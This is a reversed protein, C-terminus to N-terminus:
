PNQSICYFVFDLNGPSDGADTLMAAIESRHQIGHTAATLMAQWRPLTMREEGRVWEIEADLQVDSLSEIYARRQAALVTWRKGIEALTALEAPNVFAPAPNGQWRALWRMDAGYNHVLTDHIPQYGESWRKRYVEDPLQAAIHLLKANAWVGYDYLALLMEKRGM